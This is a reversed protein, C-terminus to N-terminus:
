SVMSAGLSSYGVFSEIVMSLCFLINRSLVLNLWNRAVFRARCLTSSCFELALFNAVVVFVCVISSRVVSSGLSPPFVCLIM